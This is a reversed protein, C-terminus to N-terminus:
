SEMSKLKEKIYAIGENDYFKKLIVKQCKEPFKFLTFVEKTGIVIDPKIEDKYEDPLIIEFNKFIAKLYSYSQSLIKKNESSTAILIIKASSQIENFNIFEELFPTTKLPIITLKDSLVKTKLYNKFSTVIIKDSFDNSRKEFIEFLVAQVRQGLLEELEEKGQILDFIDTEVLVLPTSIRETDILANYFCSIIDDEKFGQQLMLHIINQFYLFNKNYNSTIKSNSKFNVYSGGRKATKVYGSAVLRQYGEKVVRESFNERTSIEKIQPFKTKYPLKGSLINHRIIYDIGVPLPLPKLMKIKKFM